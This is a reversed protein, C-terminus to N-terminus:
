GEPDRGGSRSAPEDDRKAIGEELAALRGCLWEVSGRRQLYGAFLDLAQRDVVVSAIPAFFHLASASVVNLPKSSELMLLAPGALGRRVVAALVRDIVEREAETPLAAGRGELAFAHRVGDRVRAWLKPRPDPM